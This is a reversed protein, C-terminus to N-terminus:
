ASNAADNQVCIRTTDFRTKWCYQRLGVYKYEFATSQTKETLEQGIGRRFRKDILRQVNAKGKEAGTSRLLAHLILHQGDEQDTCM